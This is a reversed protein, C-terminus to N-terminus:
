IDITSVSKSLVESLHKLHISNIKEAVRLYDPSNNEPLSLLPVLTRLHGQLFFDLMEADRWAAIKQEGAKLDYKFPSEDKTFFVVSALKYIHDPMVTNLKVRENLNNHLKVLVSLDIRKPNSLIKNVADCHMKLYEPSCRMVLEDMYKMASLGRGAAVNLPDEHMYYDIGKYQFAPVIRFTNDIL